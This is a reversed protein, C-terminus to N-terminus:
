LRRLQMGILGALQGKAVKGSQEFGYVKNGSRKKLQVTRWTAM